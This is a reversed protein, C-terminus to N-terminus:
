HIHGALGFLRQKCNCVGWRSADHTHLQELPASHPCSAPSVKKCVRELSCHAHQLTHPLPRTHTHTFIFCLLQFCPCSPLFM